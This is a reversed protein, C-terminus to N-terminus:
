KQPDMSIKDAVEFTRFIVRHSPASLQSDAFLESIALLLAELEIM